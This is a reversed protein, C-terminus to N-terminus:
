YGLISIPVLRRCNHCEFRDITFTFIEVMIDNLTEDANFIVGVRHIVMKDEGLVKRAKGLRM